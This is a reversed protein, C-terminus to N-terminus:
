VEFVINNDEDYIVPHGDCLINLKDFAQYASDDDEAEFELKIADIPPTYYATYKKM